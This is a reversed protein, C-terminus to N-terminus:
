NRQQNEKHKCHPQENFAQCAARNLRLHAKCRASSRSIRLSFRAVPLDDAGLLLSLEGAHPLDQDLLGRSSVEEEPIADSPSRHMLCGIIFQWTLELGQLTEAVIHIARGFVSHETIEGASTAM